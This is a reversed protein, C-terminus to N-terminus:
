NESSISSSTSVPRPARTCKIWVSNNVNIVMADSSAICPGGGDTDPINWSLTVATGFESLHPTYIANPTNRNPNFTGSGGTWNGGTATNAALQLSSAGCVTQDPGANPAITNSVTIIMADSAFSCPGTGDPDPVNWTLTM